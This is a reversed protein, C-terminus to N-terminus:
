EGCRLYRIPIAWVPRWAILTASAVTAEAFLSAVDTPHAVLIAHLNTGVGLRRM